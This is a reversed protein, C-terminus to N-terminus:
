AGVAQLRKIRPKDDDSGHSDHAVTTRDRGEQKSRYLAKDTARMLEERNTGQAPYVAIGASMTVPEIQKGQYVISIAKIEKRLFEVRRQTVEAPMGPLIIAFEEGGYRCVVDDGRVFKQLQTSVAELLADGAGHGHTDNIRKFHDIDLMVLSLPQEARRSRILERDLTEILYRRNFLSTLPDRVAQSELSERLRLSAIALALSDAIMVHFKSREELTREDHEDVFAAEDRAHLCLLGLTESHATLPLCLHWNSTESDMHKCAVTHSEGDVVHPRGHRLGWCENFTFLSKLSSDGGWDTTKEFAKNTQDTLYLAGSLDPYLRSLHDEAVSCVEEVSHCAQLLRGMQSLIDMERQRHNLNKVTQELTANATRIEKTRDDICQELWNHATRLRTENAELLENKGSIEKFVAYYLVPFMTATLLISGFVDAFPSIGMDFHELLMGIAREGIFIAAILLALLRLAGTGTAKRM